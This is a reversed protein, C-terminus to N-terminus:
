IEINRLDYVVESFVEKANEETKVDSITALVANNEYIVCQKNYDDFYYSYRNM